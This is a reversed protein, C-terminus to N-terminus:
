LHVIKDTQQFIIRYDYVYINGDCYLEYVCIINLNIPHPCRNYFMMRYKKALLISLILFISSLRM